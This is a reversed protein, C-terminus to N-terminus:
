SELRNSEISFINLNEFFNLVALEVGEVKKNIYNTM